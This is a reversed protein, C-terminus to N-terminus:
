YGLNLEQAQDAMEQMAVEQEFRMKSKYELLDEYAVRRHSGVMTFRIKKDKLLKTLFPRSVNLIQAAEVTTLLHGQPVLFIPKKEAMSGLVNAILRLVKPPLELIPTDVGISNEKETLLAIKNAKSHDLAMMMCRTASRVLESESDNLIPEEINRDLTAPMKVGYTLVDLQLREKFIQVYHLAVVTILSVFTIVTSLAYNKM